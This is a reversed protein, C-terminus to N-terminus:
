FKYVFKPGFNAEIKTGSHLLTVCPFLEAASDVFLDATELREGNKTYIIQRTALNVGCGIVDGAGFLPKGGIAFRGNSSQRCGEVAHGWFRGCSEYAYTGEYRGIWVDLPMQKPGLGVSVPGKKGIIKVEYYFIGFDDTPRPREAFVSHFAWNDKGTIEVILRDPESLTLGKHRAASDWRNQLTLGNGKQPKPLAGIAQQQQKQYEEMKSHIAQQQQKQYEEMKAHINLQQQKQYEEMKSHIAQQQQKQYEEMKAHIAQQQQKQYEEMKAHIAQQQKNQYQEMKAHIAQQQKNQYQEMKAILEGKLQNMGKELEKKWCNGLANIQQQLMRDTEKQKDLKKNQGEVFQGLFNNMQEEREKCQQDIIAILSKRDFKQQESNATQKQELGNLRQLLAKQDSQLKINQQGLKAVVMAKVSKLSEDMKRLVKQDNQQKHELGGIVQSFNVASIKQQQDENLWGIKDNTEKQHQQQKLNMEEMLNQHGNLLEEHEQHKLSFQDASVALKETLADITQQQKNQHEEMKTQLAKHEKVLKEEIADKSNNALEEFKRNMKTLELEMREVKESEVCKAGEKLQETLADITQQQKNQYEELKTQLANHAILLKQHELEARLAKNELELKTIRKWEEMQELKKGLLEKTNEGEEIRRRKANQAVLDLGASSSISLNITQQRELQAIRERLLSLEESTDQDATIDVGNISDTLFSM